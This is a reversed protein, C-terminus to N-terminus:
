IDDFPVVLEWGVLAWVSELFWESEYQEVRYSVGPSYVEEPAALVKLGELDVGLASKILTEQMRKKATALLPASSARRTSKTDALVNMVLEKRTSTSGGLAAHLIPIIYRFEFKAAMNPSSPREMSINGQKDSGAVHEEFVVHSLLHGTRILVASLIGELIESHGVNGSKWEIQCIRVLTRSLYKNVAYEGPETRARKGTTRLRGKEENEQEAQLKSISKLYNLAKFFFDILGSIVDGRKKRGPMTMVLENLAEFAALYGRSIQYMLQQLLGVTQSEDDCKHQWIPMLCSSLADDILNLLECASNSLTDSRAPIASDKIIKHVDLYKQGIRFVTFFDNAVM